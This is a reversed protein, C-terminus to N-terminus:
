VVEDSWRRAWYLVFLVAIALTVRLTAFGYNVLHLTKSVVHLHDSRVVLSELCSM